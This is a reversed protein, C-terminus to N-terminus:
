LPEPPHGPQRSAWGLEMSVREEWLIKQRRGSFLGQQSGGWTWGQHGAQAWLTHRDGGSQTPHPGETAGAAREAWTKGVTVGMLCFEQLYCSEGWLPRGTGAWGQARIVHALAALALGAQIVSPSSPTM